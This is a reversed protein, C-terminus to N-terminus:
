ASAPGTAPADTRRSSLFVATAHPERPGLRVFMIVCCLSVFVFCLFVPTSVIPSKLLRSTRLTPTPAVAASAPERITGALAAVHLLVGSGLADILTNRQFCNM